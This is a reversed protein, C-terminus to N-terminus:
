RIGRERPTSESNGIGLATANSLIGRERPTSEVCNGGSAYHYFGYEGSVRPQNEGSPCYSCVLGRYEGSVRPQNEVDAITLGAM